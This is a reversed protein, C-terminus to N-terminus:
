VIQSPLSTSMRVCIVQVALTFEHYSKFNYKRTNMTIYQALFTTLTLITSSSTTTRVPRKYLKSLIEGLGNVVTSNDLPQEAEHQAAFRVVM